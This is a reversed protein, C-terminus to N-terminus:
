ARINDKRIEQRIAKQKEKSIAPLFSTFIEGTELKNARRNRFAYGLFTFPRAAKKVM